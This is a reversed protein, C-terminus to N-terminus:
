WIEKTRGLTRKEVLRRVKGTMEVHDSESMRGRWEDVFTQGSLPGLDATAWGQCLTWGISNFTLCHWRSEKQVEPILARTPSNQGITSAHIAIWPPMSPSKSFNPLLWCSFEVAAWTRAARQASRQVPQVWSQSTRANRLNFM